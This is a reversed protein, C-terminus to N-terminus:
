DIDDVNGVTDVTVEYWFDCFTHSQNNVSKTFWHYFLFMNGIGLVLWLSAWSYVM